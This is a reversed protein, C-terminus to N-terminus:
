SSCLLGLFVKPYNHVTCLLKHRHVRDFPKNIGLSAAYVSGDCQTYFASYHLIFTANTFGINRNFGFQIPDSEVYKM